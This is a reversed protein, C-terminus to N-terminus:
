YSWVQVRNNGRDAIYLRGNPGLVIDTPYNFQGDGLGWDGFTFLFGPEAESVDYVKVNQGVADAVYLRDRDDISGGRPLNLAGDGSGQGFHFIFNGEADWLSIRSNNGDTVYARGQSDTVATNPFLLQGNGQGRTGFTSEPPNFEQWSIALIDEAPIQRVASIDEDVDTLLMQGAGDFRIGLPAWGVPDPAPLTQEFDGVKQYHVEPEFQDYTFVDGPQLGDVHKSVYESLPLNPGLITDLYTGAEDYVFVAHQLRDAVFVRGSSDTALYVPSREGPTTRPPTFSDLLDGSRDFIKILREGGTEAVYIRDGQPSLTVGVPQDVGYISFVYHPPYNVEVPLPLMEPLPVPQQIYRWFLGGACCLLVLLSLLLLLLWRRKKEEKEEEEGVEEEAILNTDNEPLDTTMTM